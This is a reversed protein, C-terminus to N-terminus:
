YCSGDPLDTRNGNYRNGVVADRYEAREAATLSAPNPTRRFNM